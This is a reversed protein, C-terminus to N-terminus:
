SRERTLQELVIELTEAMPSRGYGAKRRNDLQQEVFALTRDYAEIKTLKLEIQDAQTAVDVPKPQAVSNQAAIQYSSEPETLKELVSLFEMGRKNYDLKWKALTACGPKFSLMGNVGGTQRTIWDRGNGNDYDLHQSMSGIRNRYNEMSKPNNRDFSAGMMLHRISLLRNHIENMIDCKRAVEDRELIEIYMWGVAQREETNAIIEHQQPTLDNLSIQDSKDQITM